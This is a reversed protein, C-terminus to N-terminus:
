DRKPGFIGRLLRNEFVGLRHEERLTMSWIECGYLLVPLTKYVRIKKIEDQILNQITVITGLYKFQSANESSRYAIKIDRNQNQHHYLLRHKTREVNIELGVEKSADILTEINKRLTDINNWYIWKLMPCFNIHGMWIWDWRIKRCTGLPM